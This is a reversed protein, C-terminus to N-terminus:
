LEALLRRVSGAAAALWQERLPGDSDRVPVFSQREVRGVGAPGLVVDRWFRTVPDAFVEREVRESSNGTTLILAARAQLLGTVAGHRDLTFAVDERVVRDVWGKMVAPAQFFWVPHVFVLLDAALLDRAYGACLEDAFAASGVEAEGLRPDFGDRYLDHLVTSAGAEVAAALAARALAANLSASRPHALVVLVRPAHVAPRIAPRPEADPDAAGTM